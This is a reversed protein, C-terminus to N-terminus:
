ASDQIISLMRSSLCCGKPHALERCRERCGGSGGLDGFCNFYSLLLNQSERPPVRLTVWFYSKVMIEAASGSVGFDCFLLNISRASFVLYKWHGWRIHQSRIALFLNSILRWSMTWKKNPFNIVWTTARNRCEDLIKNSYAKTGRSEGVPAGVLHVFVFFGDFCM